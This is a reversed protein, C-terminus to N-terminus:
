IVALLRESKAFSKPALSLGISPKTIVGLGAFVKMWTFPALLLGIDKCIKSMRPFCTSVVSFAFRTFMWLKVEPIYMTFATCFPAMVVVFNITSYACMENYNFLSDKM